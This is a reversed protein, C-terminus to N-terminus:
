LACPGGLDPGANSFVLQYETKVDGIDRVFQISNLSSTNSAYKSGENFNDPQPTQPREGDIRFPHSIVNIPMPTPTIFPVRTDNHLSYVCPCQQMGSMHGLMYQLMTSSMRVQSELTARFLRPCIVTEDAGGFSAKRCIMWHHLKSVLLAGGSNWGFRAASSGHRRPMTLSDRLCHVRLRLELAYLSARM